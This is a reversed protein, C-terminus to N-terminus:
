LYELSISYLVMSASAQQTVAQNWVWSQVGFIILGTYDGSDGNPALAAVTLPVLGEGDVYTTTYTKTITGTQTGQGIVEGISTGDDGPAGSAFSLTSFFGDNVGSVAIDYELKVTIAVARGKATGWNSSDIGTLAYQVGVVAIPFGSDGPDATVAVTAKNGAASESHDAPLTDSSYKFETLHFNFQNKNWNQNKGYAINYYDPPAPKKATVVTATSAVSLVMVAILLLVLYKKM